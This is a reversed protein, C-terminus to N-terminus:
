RKRARACLHKHTAWHARQCHQCCYRETTCRSCVLNAENGTSCETYACRLFFNERRVLIENGLKPGTALKVGFRAQAGEPVSVITALAGNLEASSLDRLTVRAGM